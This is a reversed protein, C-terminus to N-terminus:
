GVLARLPAFAGNLVLRDAPFTAFLARGIGGNTELLETVQREIMHGELPTFTLRSLPMLGDITHMTEVSLEDTVVELAVGAPESRTRFFKRSRGSTREVAATPDAARLWALVQDRIELDRGDHHIPVRLVVDVGARAFGTWRRVVDAIDSDKARLTVETLNPLTEPDLLGVRIPDNSGDIVIRRISPRPAEVLRAFFGMTPISVTELNTAVPSSVFARYRAPKAKGREIQRVVRLWPHQTARVWVDEPAAEERELEFSVPMGRSWTRSTTVPYLDGLLDRERGSVGSRLALQLIEGRVDERELYWDALVMRPGDDDPAAAVLELLQAEMADATPPTTATGRLVAEDGDTLVRPSQLSMALAGDRVALGAGSEFVLRDIQATVDTVPMSNLQARWAGDEFYPDELVAVLWLQELPRVTVLFLAGGTRLLDLTTKASAYSDIALVDGVKAGPALRQFAQKSILALVGAV